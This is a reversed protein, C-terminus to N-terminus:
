DPASIMCPMCNGRSSYTIHIHAHVILLRFHSVSAPKHNLWFKCTSSKFRFRSPVTLFHAPVTLFPCSGHHFRSIPVYPCSWVAFAIPSLMNPTFLLLKKNFLTTPAVSRLNNVGSRRVCVYPLNHNVLVCSVHFVYVVDSHLFLQFITGDRDM